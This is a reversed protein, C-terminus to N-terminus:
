NNNNNNGGSWAGGTSGSRAANSGSLIEIVLQAIWTPWIQDEVEQDEELLTKNRDQIVMVGMILILPLPNTTLRM